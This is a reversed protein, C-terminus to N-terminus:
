DREAPGDVVLACPPPNRPFTTRSAQLVRLCRTRSSKTSVMSAARCLARCTPFPSCLHCPVWSSTPQCGRCLRGPLCPDTLQIASSLCFDWRASISVPVLALGPRGGASGSLSVPQDVFAVVLCCSSFRHCPWSSGEHGPDLSSLDRSENDIFEWPIECVCERDRQRQRQRQREREGM